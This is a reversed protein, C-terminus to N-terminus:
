DDYDPFQHLQNSVFVEIVKFSREICASLFSNSLALIISSHLTFATSLGMFALSIMYCFLLDHLLVACQYCLFFFVKTNLPVGNMWIYM